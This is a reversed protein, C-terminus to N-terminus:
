IRLWAHLRSGLRRLSYLLCSCMGLGRTPCEHPAVGEGWIVGM